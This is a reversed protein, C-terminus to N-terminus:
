RAYICIHNVDCLDPMKESISALAGVDLLGRPIYPAFLGRKYIYRKLIRLWRVLM